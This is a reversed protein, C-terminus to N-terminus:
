PSRRHCHKHSKADSNTKLYSQLYLKEVSIPLAWSVQPPSLAVENSHALPLSHCVEILQTEVSWAVLHPRIECVILWRLSFKIFWGAVAHKRLIRICHLISYSTRGVPFLQHWLGYKTRLSNVAPVAILNGAGGVCGACSICNKLPLTLCMCALNRYPSLSSLIKGSYQYAIVM